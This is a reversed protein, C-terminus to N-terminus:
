IEQLRGSKRSFLHLRYVAEEEVQKFRVKIIEGRWIYQREGETWECNTTKSDTRSEGGRGDDRGLRGWPTGDLRNRKRIGAKQLELQLV